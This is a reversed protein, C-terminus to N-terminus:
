PEPPELRERRWMVFGRSARAAALFPHLMYALVLGVSGRRALSSSWRLYDAPPFLAHGLLGLRERASGAAALREFGSTEERAGAPDPLGLSVALGDGGPVAHLGRSMQPAARFGRAMAAAQRWTEPSSRATARELDALWKTARDGHILHHAAHLAALLALAPEDLIRAQRRSAPLEVEITRPWLETWVREPSTGRAGPLTRHLDVTGATSPRVWVSDHELRGDREYSRPLRNFSLEGLVREAATFRSPAVLLDVDVYPRFEDEDYLWRTIAPGKLLIAPIAAGQLADLVEATLVDVAMTRAVATVEDRPKM